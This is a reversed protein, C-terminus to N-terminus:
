RARRTAVPSRAARGRPAKPRPAGDISAVLGGPLWVRAGPTRAELLGALAQRTPRPLAAIWAPTGARVARGGELAATRAVVEDAVAELHRVIKPDLATLLPMLEHRVRTRLYRPDANSPDTAFPIAHRELHAMVDARQARLLPRIVTVSGEDGGEGGNGEGHWATARPPLVGLGRLGTGRLLRLLFTEARDDCHHGTAVAAGRRRAVEVLAAWRLDRARAQLNSGRAVSVRTRDFPVGIRRAHREALDLEAAAEARLGHDVGHASVDLGFRPGLRALTSLLAMSDPGGSVAAVVPTGRPLACEGELARRVITLLSPPHSSRATM